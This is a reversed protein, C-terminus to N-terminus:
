PPLSLLWWSPPRSSSTSLRATSWACRRIARARPACDIGRAGGGLALLDYGFFPRTGLWPVIMLAPLGLAPVALRLTAGGDDGRLRALVLEVAVWAVLIAVVIAGGGWTLLYAGLSLGAYIAFPRRRSEPRARDLALVVFM